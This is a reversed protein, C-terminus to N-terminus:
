TSKNKDDLFVNIILFDYTFLTGIATLIFFKSLHFLGCISMHILEETETKRLRFLVNEAICTISTLYRKRLKTKIM